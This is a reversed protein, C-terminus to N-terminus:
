VASSSLPVHEGGCNVGELSDTNNLQQQFKEVRPVAQFNSIVPNTPTLNYQDLPFIRVFKHSETVVYFPKNAAKAVVAIQYTGM